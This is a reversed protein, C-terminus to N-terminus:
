MKFSVVICLYYIVRPLHVIQGNNTSASCDEGCVDTSTAYWSAKGKGQKM